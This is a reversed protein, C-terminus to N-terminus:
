YDTFLKLIIVDIKYNFTIMLLSIMSVFGVGISEALLKFDIAKINIKVKFFILVFVVQLISKLYMLCFIMYINRWSICFVVLLGLSYAAEVYINIRNRLNIDEVMVIFNVQKNIVLFPILTFIIILSEKNIFVLSLILSIAIYIVLQFFVNNIYKTQIDTIHKRKFFPFSQYIGLNLFMSVLNVINLIYAYEGRLTPGLLRNIFVMNLVGLIAILVKTTVSYFYQNKLITKIM